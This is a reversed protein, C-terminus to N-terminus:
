VLKASHAKDAAYLSRYFYAQASDFKVQYYFGLAALFAFRSESIADDAPTIQLGQEAAKQLLPYNSGAAAGKAPPSNRLSDCYALLSKIKDPGEGRVVGCVLVAALLVAMHIKLNRMTVYFCGANGGPEAWENYCEM